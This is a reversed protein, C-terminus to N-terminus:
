RKRRITQFSMSRDAILATGGTVITLLPILSYALTHTEGSLGAQGRSRCYREALPRARTMQVWGLEDCLPRLRRGEPRATVFRQSVLFVLALEIYYNQHQPRCKRSARPRQADRVRVIVGRGLRAPTQHAGRELKGVQGAQTSDKDSPWQMSLQCQSLQHTTRWRVDCVGDSITEPCGRVARRHTSAVSQSVLM